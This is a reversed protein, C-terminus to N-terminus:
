FCFSRKGLNRYHFRKGIGSIEEMEELSLEVDLTVAYEKLRDPGHSTTIPVVGQQLAWRLLIAGLEAVHKKAM